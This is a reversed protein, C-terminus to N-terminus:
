PDRSEGASFIADKPLSLSRSAQSRNEMDNEIADRREYTGFTGDQLPKAVSPTKELTTKLSM